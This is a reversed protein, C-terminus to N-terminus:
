QVARRVMADMLGPAILRLWLALKGAWTMVVERKRRAMAKVILRACTEVPMAGPLMGSGPPEGRAEIRATDVLSPYIMTVSVGQDALETRLADFFGAMAHKSASYASLGPTGVKGSLSSVGVIRGQSEKLYPLAYFTCYVSGLYNVRLIRELMELDDLEDFRAIQSIGADNVLADIRGYEAAAREVLARCQAEVSVDTPVVVARGGRQWCGEATEELGERSRAALVLWAGRDALQRAVERGIGSSAGTVIVVKERLSEDAM